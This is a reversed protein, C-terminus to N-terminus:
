KGKNLPILDKDLWEDTKVKVIKNVDDVIDELLDGKRLRATLYTNLDARLQMEDINM